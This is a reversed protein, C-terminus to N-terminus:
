RLNTPTIIGKIAHIMNGAIMAAGVYPEQQQKWQNAFQRTKQKGIANEMQSIIIDQDMNLKQVLQFLSKGVAEWDEKIVFNYINAADTPYGKM